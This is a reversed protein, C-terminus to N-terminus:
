TWKLPNDMASTRSVVTSASQFEEGIERRDAVLQFQQLFHTQSIDLDTLRCGGKGTTFRLTYFQGLFQGSPRGASGEIHQIFRRNSQM